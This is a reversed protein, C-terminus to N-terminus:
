FLFDVLNPFDVFPNRNNQIDYIRNNKIFEAEDVPDDKNWQIYTRIQDKPLYYDYRIAFYLYARAVNGKHSVPPEFLGSYRDFESATCGSIPYQNGPIEVIPYHGRMGNIKSDTPYLHHLDTKQANKPYRPNFTSQPITHEVNFRTHDPIQYRGNEEEWIVSYTKLCYPTTVFKEGTTPDVKYHLGAMVLPRVVASYSNDIVHSYCKAGGPCYEFVQDFNENEITHKAELIFKIQERAEAKSIKPSDTHLANQYFDKGYYYIPETQANLNIVGLSCFFVCIIKIM